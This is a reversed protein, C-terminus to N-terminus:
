RILWMAFDHWMQSPGIVAARVNSFVFVALAVWLSVPHIRGTSVRDHIAGASLFAAYPILIIPPPLERLVASHGIIHTLAAPILGGITALLMLRKHVSPRGRFIVATAVLVGFCLMDGLQFVMLYLPDGGEGIMDGSLDYGRRAMEITVIYGSILMLGALGVGAYGLRRHSAFQGKYVLLAQALFLALWASFLLGHIGVPWTLPARRSTTDVLAPMFGVASSAIAAIAM